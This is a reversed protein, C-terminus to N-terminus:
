LFSHNINVLDGYPTPIPPKGSSPLPAAPRSPPIRITQFSPAVHLFLFIVLLHTVTSLAHSRERLFENIHPMVCAKSKVGPALLESGPALATGVHVLKPYPQGGQARFVLCPVQAQSQPCYPAMTPTQASAHSLGSYSSEWGCAQIPQAPIFPTTTPQSM